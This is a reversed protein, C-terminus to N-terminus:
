LGKIAEITDYDLPIYSKTASHTYSGADMSLYPEVVSGTLVRDCLGGRDITVEMVQMGFFAFKLCERGKVRFASGKFDVNTMDKINRSYGGQTLNYTIVDSLATRLDIKAQAVLADDRRASMRKAAVAGLIGIIAIVFILEVMSFARLKRM